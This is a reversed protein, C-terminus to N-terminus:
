KPPQNLLVNIGIMQGQANTLSFALFGAVITALLITTNRTKM